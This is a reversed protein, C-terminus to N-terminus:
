LYCEYLQLGLLIAGGLVTVLLFEGTNRAEGRNAASVALAMTLSSMLLMFTSVTVMPINIIDQPHPGVVSRYRFVMYTTILSAFFMSESALFVWIAFKQNPLGLSPPAHTVERSRFLVRR